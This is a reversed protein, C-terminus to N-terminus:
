DMLPSQIHSYACAGGSSLEGRTACAKFISCLLPQTPVGMGHPEEAMMQESSGYDGCDLLTTQGDSHVLLGHLMECVIQELHVAPRYMHRLVAFRQSIRLLSRAHCSLM